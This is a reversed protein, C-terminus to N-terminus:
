EEPVPQNFGADGIQLTTNYLVQSVMSQPVKFNRGYLKIDWGEAIAKESMRQIAGPVTNAAHKKSIDKRMYFAAADKAARWSFNYIQAVSFRSLLSSVVHRTKEGPTFDFGHEGMVHRLYQLSEELAVRARLGNVESTWAPPWEKSSLITELDQVIQAPKQANSLPILWHVRLSYFRFSSPDDDVLEIADERSQPHICLADSHYLQLLIEHDYDQCPSLPIEYYERPAIFTLDESGGTRIVSLLYVADSFSLDTITLGEECKGLYEDNVLDYRRQEDEERVRVQEEREIELCTECVWSHWAYSYSHQTYDTRSTFPRPAGCQACSLKSCFATSSDNVLKRIAASSLHSEQSLESLKFAFTKGEALQWYRICLERSAEDDTHLKLELKM